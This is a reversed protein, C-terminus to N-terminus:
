KSLVSFRFKTSPDLTTDLGQVSKTAVAIQKGSLLPIISLFKQAMDTQIQQIIAARKDKDPETAEATMQATLGPDEFHNQLFNNPAFFPTLYDDADPYDPFWGMQFVPYGDHVREKSYTVWETSQLNVKFLGTAELQNKIAAYEESSSSGYHDPNYQLNVTVPTQVGADSLFKAAEDKNPKDGYSTKYPEIAGPYASPVPSYAPQYTGKYVGTSLADRDISSAVAKRVALKQDPTGGPMTNMNFVIYRLEGGPGTVVKTDKASKLSEIDTASLSRYAIDIGGSQIDLKLNQGSTYYKIAIKDTKRKNAGGYNPNPELQVLQNKSYSALKYPGSGIAKDDPLLKDAPFVKSDVIPGADTGLIFPWTQDNANNLTFVVTMDDPAAVSKMNALLSAAGNPDNIKVERQYSFVVDQATLPDGNSFKQGSKLKCTYETPKTFSCSEAADPTAAGGGVPFAMLYQYIQTELNQSGFDYSGAPDLSVVQDTTGITLSKGAGGGQTGGGTPQNNTKKGAGCAALTATLLAAAASIALLRQSRRHNMLKSGKGPVPVLGARL